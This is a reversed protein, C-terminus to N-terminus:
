AQSERVALWPTGRYSDAVVWAGATLACTAIFEGRQFDNVTGAVMRPVWVILGFLGMQLASLTAALRALVDFSVALGAAIFAAGTLYAWAVHWPLWSPILVTTADLYMFHALGFPILSLGYLTRAVRLGRAGTIFGLRLRDHEDAFWSYLVWAAAVMVATSGFTWAVLVLPTQYFLNPLRLVLLWILLSAFLVRSALLASRRWLLGIGCGLSLLACLYAVQGPVWKPVPQWIQGFDGTVLGMIGLAIMTTAFAAHGASAIRIARGETSSSNMLITM